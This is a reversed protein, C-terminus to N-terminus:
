KGNDKEKQGNPRNIRNRLETRKQFYEDFAIKMLDLPDKNTEKEYDEGETKKLHTLFLRLQEIVPCEEAEIEGVFDYVMDIPDIYDWDLTQRQILSAIVGAKCSFEKYGCIFEIKLFDKISAGVTLNYKESEDSM